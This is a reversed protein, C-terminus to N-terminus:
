HNSRSIILYKISLLQMSVTTVSDSNPGFVADGTYFEFAPVRYVAFDAASSVM